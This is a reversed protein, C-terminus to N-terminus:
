TRSSGLKEAKLDYLWVVASVEEFGIKKLADYALTLTSFTTSVDDILILQRGKAYSLLQKQNYKKSLEFQKTNKSLRQSRNMLKQQLNSNSSSSLLPQVERDLYKAVEQMQDWGRKRLSTRSCPIPVVIAKKDPDLVELGQRLMLAVVKALNKDNKFKFRQLVSYSLDGDYTSICYVPFISTGTQEGKLCRPCRYESSILPYFCSPCKYMFTDFSESQLTALCSPCLFNSDCVTDCILCRDILM